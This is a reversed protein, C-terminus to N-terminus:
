RWVTSNRCRRFSNIFFNNKKKWSWKKILQSYIGWIIAAAMIIMGIIMIFNM